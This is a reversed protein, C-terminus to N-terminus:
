LKGHVQTANHPQAHYREAIVSNENSVSCGGLVGVLLAVGSFCRVALPNGTCCPALVGAPVLPGLVTEGLRDAKPRLAIRVKGRDRCADGMRVASGSFGLSVTVSGFCGGTGAAL